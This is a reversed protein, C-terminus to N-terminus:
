KAIRLVTKASVDKDPRRKWEDTNQYNGALIMRYEGWVYEYMFRHVRFGQEIVWHIIGNRDQYAQGVKPRTFDNM